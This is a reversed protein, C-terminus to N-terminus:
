QRVKRYVCPNHRALRSHLKLTSEVMHNRSAILSPADKRIVSVTFCIQREDLAVDRARQAACPEFCYRWASVAFCHLMSQSQGRLRPCVVVTRDLRLAGAGTRLLAAARDGDPWAEEDIAVTLREFDDALHRLWRAYEVFIRPEGATVAQGVYRLHFDGDQSAHRPAAEALRAELNM